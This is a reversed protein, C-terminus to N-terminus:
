GAYNVFTEGAITLTRALPTPDSALPSLLPYREERRTGRAGRRAEIRIPSPLQNVQWVVSLDAPQFRLANEEEMGPEGEKRYPRHV